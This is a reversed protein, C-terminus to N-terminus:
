PQARLGTKPVPIVEGERRILREVGLTCVGLSVVAAAVIATAVTRERRWLAHTSRGGLPRGM